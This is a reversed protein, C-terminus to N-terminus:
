EWVIGGDSVETLVCSFRAGWNRIFVNVALPHPTVLLEDNERQHGNIRWGTRILVM